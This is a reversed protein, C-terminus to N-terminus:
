LFFPHHKLTIAEQLFRILKKELEYSIKRQVSESTGENRTDESDLTCFYKKTTGHSCSTPEAQTGAM